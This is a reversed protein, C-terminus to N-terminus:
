RGPRLLWGSLSVVGYPTWYNGGGGVSSPVTPGKLWRHSALDYIATAGPKPGADSPAPDGIAQQGGPYTVVIASAGAAIDFPYPVGLPPHLAIVNKPRGPHLLVVQADELTCMGGPPCRSGTALLAGAVETLSLQSEPVSRSSTLRIWRGAHLRFLEVFGDVTSSNSTVVPTSVGVLAYLSGSDVATVTEAIEGQRPRPLDALRTWGNKGLEYAHSTRTRHTTIALMASGTWTLSNAGTTPLTQIRQWTDTAPRWAETLGTTTSVLVLRGGGWAAVPELGLADPPATVKAWTNARPDYTAAVPKCSNFKTELVVLDTGDWVATPNCFRVPPKPMEIWRGAALRGASPGPIPKATVAPTTTKAAGSTHGAIVIAGGAILAVALGAASVQETRRRRLRRRGATVIQSVPADAVPGGAADLLALVADDDTM